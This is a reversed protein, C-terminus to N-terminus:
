LVMIANTKLLATLLLLSKLNTGSHLYPTCITHGREDDTPKSMETLKASVEDFEELLQKNSRRDTLDTASIYSVELESIKQLMEEHFQAVEVSSKDLHERFETKM